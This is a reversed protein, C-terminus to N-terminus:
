IASAPVVCPDAFEDWLCSAKEGAMEAAASRTLENLYRGRVGEATFLASAQGAPALEAAIDGSATSSPAADPAHPCNRCKAYFAALRALHVSRSIDYAEGPCRFVETTASAAFM